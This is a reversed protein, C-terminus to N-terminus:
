SSLDADGSRGRAAAAADHFLTALQQVNAHLDYEAEVLERGARATRAATAPDAAVERVAAALAAEDEPPVLWGTSGPRVLEPIGSLRSAIVPLEAAMAEMLAVPIGEMQGNKAVVSPQVYVDATALLAAVQDEDQAGLLLVQEQLGHQAILQELRLREAGEGIVRCRFSVGSDRLRRCAEVLYTQGKYPQLSGVSLLELVQGAARPSARRYRGPAVGCRVVHTRAPLSEDVQEALYDRNYESISVVFGCASLKVPLMARSVFLDHAHVTVSYSTGTLRHAVWAALLPFTAFHAHVHDVGERKVLRALHVCSPLLALARILTTPERVHERVVTLWVMLYRLPSRLLARLNAAGVARLDTSLYRARQMWPRAEAHVVPQQQRILPFLLVDIGQDVLATMERLIFTESLLPFRSVVYGVRVAGPAPQM